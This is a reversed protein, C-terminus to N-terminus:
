ERTSFYWDLAERAVPLVAAPIGRPTGQVNEVLVTLVIQPDDYPAFVTVWNHYVNAKGTQSTGTKAAAVVPLYNLSYSSGDPSTVAQKMGQRIIELNSASTPLNKIIEPEIKEIAEKDSNIVEKVVKPRYIKGGNAIAVYASAVQIPTISFPGQGISLHYTDGTTWEDELNPLIGIGEKPLDIGTLSDWNFKTLWEKIKTPGLGKLGEYGGGIQYFFTNVSEAIARKIDSTGHYKWDEYCTKEDPHWPNKLCIELPSYIKTNENIIGEELAAVGVLPKITSGTPYGIGSIARNFLPNRPDAQLEIWEDKSIDHSFLNNDYSPLSVLALVGGTKPDLAVAAGGTGGVNEISRALSATIKEQLGADLWLVLNKGSEPMSVVEKSIPRGRVDREIYVEGPKSNLINDYYNELGSKEGTKRKYGIIQSFVSGSLYDREANDIIELGPLEGRKSELLVISEHTLNKAIITEALNSANIKDKLVQAEVSVIEAVKGIVRDREDPNQPLDNVLAALDFSPSNFVLQKMNSDYIIGREAEIFRVSFQNEKALKAYERGDIVQLQFTKGFIFILLVFFGILFGRLIRHSILIELKKESVGTQREEKRALSDLLIDSPDIERGFKKIKFKGLRPNSM